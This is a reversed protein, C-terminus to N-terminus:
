VDVPPVAGAAALAPIRAGLLESKAREIAGLFAITVHLQDRPTRRAGAAVPLAALADRSARDLTLAVFCRLRDGAMTM